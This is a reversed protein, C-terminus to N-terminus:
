AFKPFVADAVVPHDAFDLVFPQQHEDQSHPMASFDISLCILLLWPRSGEGQFRGSEAFISRMGPWNRLPRKSPQALNHRAQRQLPCAEPALSQAPHLARGQSPRPQGRSSIRRLLLARRPTATGCM